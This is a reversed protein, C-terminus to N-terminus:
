EHKLASFILPLKKFKMKGSSLSRAGELPGGARTRGRSKEEKGRDWVWWKGKLDM